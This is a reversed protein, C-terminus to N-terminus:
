LLFAYSRREMACLVSGRGRIGRPRFGSDIFCRQGGGQDMAVPREIGDLISNLCVILAAMTEEENEYMWTM